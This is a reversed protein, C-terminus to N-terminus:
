PRRHSLPRKKVHMKPHNVRDTLELNEIRNDTKDHNIHHVIEWSELKRDLYKEMVLRHEPVYKTQRKIVKYGNNHTFGIYNWPKRGIGVGKHNASLKRKSEESHHMGHWNHGHIYKHPRGRSDFPELDNGCGCSCTCYM